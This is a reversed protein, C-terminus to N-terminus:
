NLVVTVLLREPRGFPSDSHQELVKELQVVIRYGSPRAHGFSAGKPKTVVLITHNM